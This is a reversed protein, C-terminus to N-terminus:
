YGTFWIPDVVRLENDGSNAIMDRIARSLIICGRSASQNECSNDGHIQFDTRGYTNTGPWFTLDMVAPGTNMSDRQASIAYTGRPIPGVNSVSEM